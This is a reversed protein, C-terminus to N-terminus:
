AQRPWSHRVTVQDLPDVAQFRQTRGIEPLSSVRRM